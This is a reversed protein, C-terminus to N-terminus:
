TGALQLPKVERSAEPRLELDYAFSVKKMPSNCPEASQIQLIGVALGADNSRSVLGLDRDCSSFAFVELNARGNALSPENWRFSTPRVMTLDEQPDPSIGRAIQKQPVTLGAEFATWIKKPGTESCPRQEYRAVLMSVRLTNKQNQQVLGIPAENCRRLYYVQYRSSLPEVADMSLLQVPVRHLTFQPLRDEESSQLLNFSGLNSSDLGALAFVKTARNCPEPRSSSAELIGFRMGTAEPLVYLGIAYGCLSTYIAQSLNQTFHLNQIPAAKIILPEQNPDISTIAAYNQAKIMPLVTEQMGLLGMCRAHFRRLVVAVKLEGGEAARLLFGAFEAGCPEFYSVKVTGDLEAQIKVPELELAYPAAHLAFPSLGLIGFFITFFALRSLM